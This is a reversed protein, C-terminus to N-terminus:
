PLPLDEYPDDEQLALPVVVAATVALGVVTWIWWRRYWPTPARPRHFLRDMGKRVAGDLGAPGGYLTEELSRTVASRRVDTVKLQLIFTKGLGGLAGSVVHSAGLDRGVAGTCGEVQRDPGHCTPTRVLARDVEPMPVLRTSRHGSLHDHMAGRARPVAERAAQGVADLPLVAIVMSGRAAHRPGACGAAHIALTVLTLQLIKNLM